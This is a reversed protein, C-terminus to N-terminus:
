KPMPVPLAASLAVSLATAALSLLSLLSLLPLLPLPMLLLRFGDPSVGVAAALPALLALL